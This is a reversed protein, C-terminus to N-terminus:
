RWDLQILLDFASSQKAEQQGRLKLWDLLRYEVTVTQGIQGTEIPQTVKVFLRETVYSGVELSGSTLNNGPGTGPRYEFVDLGAWNGVLSTLQGTAAGSATKQIQDQSLLGAGGPGTGLLVQVAEENTMGQFEFRTETMTGYVHVRLPVSATTTTASKYEATVDLQPNTIPGEYRINGATVEFRKGLLSVQGQRTQISGNITPDAGHDKYMWMDGTLEINMGSGRIWCNGPVVLHLENAMSKYIATPSFPNPGAATSDGRLVTLVSDLNVEEV